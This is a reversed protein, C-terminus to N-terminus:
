VTLAARRRNTGDHVAEVLEYVNTETTLGKAIVSGVIKFRFCNEVRDRVAGSVLITTGFEKNM